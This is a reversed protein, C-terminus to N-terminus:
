RKGCIALDSQRLSRYPCKVANSEWVTLGADVVYSEVDFEMQRVARSCQSATEAWEYVVAGEPWNSASPIARNWRHACRCAVYNFVARSPCLCHAGRATLDPESIWDIVASAHMNVCFPYANRTTESHSNHKARIMDKGQERRTM